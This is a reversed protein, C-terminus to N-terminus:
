MQNGPIIREDAWLEADSTGCFEPGGNEATDHAQLPAALCLAGDLFAYSTIDLVAGAPAEVDKGSQWNGFTTKQQWLRCRASFTKWSGHRRNTSLILSQSGELICVAEM